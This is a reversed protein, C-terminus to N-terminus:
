TPPASTQERILAQLVHFNPTDSISGNHWPLWNGHKDVYFRDLEIRVQRVQVWPVTERGNFLGRANAHLKGFAVTQGADLATLARELLHKLTQRQLLGGLQPLDPLSDDFTLETGDRRKLNYLLKGQSLKAWSTTPRKQWLLDIEDWFVARAEGRHLRVLGEPYILIRLGRNRYARQALFVSGALFVFGVVALKFFIFSDHAAHWWIMAIPLAILILGFPVLLLAGFILRFFRANNIVFEAQPPGLDAVKISVDEVAEPVNWVDNEM